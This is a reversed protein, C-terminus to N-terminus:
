MVYSRNNACDVLRNQFLPLFASDNGVEGSIWAHGFGNSFLTRKLFTAWTVRGSDNLRRLMLDCETLAFSNLVSQNLCALRKCFQVQVIEIKDCTQHGWLELSYM